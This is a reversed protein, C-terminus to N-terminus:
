DDKKDDEWQYNARWNVEQVFGDRNVRREAFSNCKPCRYFTTVGWGENSFDDVSKMFNGCTFCKM